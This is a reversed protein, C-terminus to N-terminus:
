GVQKQTTSVAGSPRSVRAAPAAEPEPELATSPAEMEEFADEDDGPIDLVPQQPPPAFEESPEPYAEGTLEAQGAEVEAEVEVPAAVSAKEAAPAAPAAEPAEAPPATEEAPPPPAEVASEAAPGAEAPTEAAAETALEEM